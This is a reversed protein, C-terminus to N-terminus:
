WGLMRRGVSTEAAGVGSRFMNTHSGGNNGSKLLWSVKNYNTLAESLCSSQLNLAQRPLQSVSEFYFLLFFDSSM